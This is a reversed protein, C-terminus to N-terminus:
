LWSDSMFYEALTETSNISCGKIFVAFIYM